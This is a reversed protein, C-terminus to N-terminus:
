AKRKVTNEKRISRLVRQMDKLRRLRSEINVFNMKSDADNFYTHMEEIEGKLSGITLLLEPLYKMEKTAEMTEKNVRNKEKRAEEPESLIKIYEKLDLNATKAQEAIQKDFSKLAIKREKDFVSILDLCNKGLFIDLYAKWMNTNYHVKQKGNVAYGAPGVIFTRATSLHGAVSHTYKNLDENNATQDEIWKQIAATTDYRKSRWVMSMDEQPINNDLASYTITNLGPEVYLNKCIKKAYIIDRSDTRIPEGAVALLFKKDNGEVHLWTVTLKTNFKVTYPEEGVSPSNRATKNATVYAKRLRETVITATIESLQETSITFKVKKGFYTMNEYVKDPEGVKPFPFYVEQGYKKACIANMSTGFGHRILGYNSFYKEYSEAEELTYNNHILELYEEYKYGSKGKMYKKFNEESVLVTETEHNQTM